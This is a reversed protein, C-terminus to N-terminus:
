QQPYEEKKYSEILHEFFDKLIIMNSTIIKFEYLISDLQKMILKQNEDNIMEKRRINFILIGYHGSLRM